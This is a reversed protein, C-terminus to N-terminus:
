RRKLPDWRESKKFDALLFQERVHPSKSCVKRFECGSYKSCSSPNMPFTGKATAQRALGITFMASTYWEDLKADDRFTFGRLFRSFGVAIQAADIIVGKVPRKYIIKGALTYLSMQSDPDYQDFYQPTITSKTTKQDMVYYSGAYEVLRDIHGSLVIGNDAEFSFSFEVAPTGDELKYVTVPDNEFHDVYWIITRILTERNKNPDGSDWPKGDIWTAVLTEHVVRVLADDCSEGIAVYKHYHELATAYWGGFLLHHSKQLPQWGDIMKLKYKYLCEEAIKISTSDWAFQVGNEDFSQNASATPSIDDM